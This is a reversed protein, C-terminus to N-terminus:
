LTELVEGRQECHLNYTWGDKWGDMQGDMRGSSCHDGGASQEM